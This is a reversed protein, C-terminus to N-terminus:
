AYPRACLARSGHARRGDGDGAWLPRPCPLRPGRGRDGLPSEPGGGADAEAGGGCPPCGATRGGCTPAREAPRASQARMKGGGMRNPHAAHRPKRGAGGRGEGAPGLPARPRSRRRAPVPAARMRGRGEEPHGRGGRLRICEAYLPFHAEAGRYMEGRSLSGRYRTLYEQSTVGAANAASGEVDM